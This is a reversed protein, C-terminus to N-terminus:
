PRKHLRYGVWGGIFVFGMWVMFAINFNRQQDAESQFLQIGMKEFFLGSFFLVVGFFVSALLTGAFVFAITRMVKDISIQYTAIEQFGVLLWARRHQVQHADV